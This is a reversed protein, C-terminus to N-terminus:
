SAAIQDAAWAFDTLRITVGVLLALDAPSFRM